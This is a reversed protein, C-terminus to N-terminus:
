RRKGPVSNGRSNRGRKSKKPRVIIVPMGFDMGRKLAKETADVFARSVPFSPGRYSSFQIRKAYGPAPRTAKKPGFTRAWNDRYETSAPRSQFSKELYKM